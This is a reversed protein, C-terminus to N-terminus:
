RLRTMPDRCRLGLHRSRLTGPRPLCPDRSQRNQGVGLRIRLERITLGRRPTPPVHDPGETGGRSGGGGGRGAPRPFFKGAASETVRSVTPIATVEEKGGCRAHQQQM